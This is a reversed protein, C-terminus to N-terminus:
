YAVKVGVTVNRGMLPAAKKIFPTHVQDSYPIPWNCDSAVSKRTRECDYSGQRMSRSADSCEAKHTAIVPVM